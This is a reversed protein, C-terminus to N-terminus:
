TFDVLPPTKSHMQPHLANCASVEAVPPMAFNTLLAGEADMLEQAEKAPELLDGQDICSKSYKRVLSDM